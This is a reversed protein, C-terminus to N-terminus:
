PYYKLVKDLAKQLKEQYKVDEPFPAGIHFMSGTGNEKLLISGPDSQFSTVVDEKYELIVYLDYAVSIIKNVPAAMRVRVFSTDTAYRVTVSLIGEKNIAFASDITMQGNFNWHQRQSIKLIYNLQTLFEKEAKQKSQACVSHHFLLCLSFLLIASIKKMTIIIQYYKIASVLVVKIQSIVM